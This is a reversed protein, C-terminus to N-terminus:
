KFHLSLFIRFDRGASPLRAYYCQYKTNLINNITFNLTPKTPITKFDLGFTSNLLWYSPTTYAREAVRNQKAYYTTRLAIKYRVVKDAPSHYNINSKINVPPVFDLPTGLTFYSEDIREGNLYALGTNIAMSSGTKPLNRFTYSGTIEGGWMRTKPINIYGYNKGPQGFIEEKSIMDQMLWIFPSFEFRFLRPTCSLTLDLSNCYEPELNPNCIAMGNPTYSDTYLETIEPMRFAHALNVKIITKAKIKQHLSLNGSVAHRRTDRGTLQEYSYASGEFVSTYDFRLGATLRTAPTLYHISEAYIGSVYSRADQSVRNEFDIGEIYDVADVPTSIHFSYLAAGTVLQQKQNIQITTKINGGYYYDSFRTTEMYSLQYGAVTYFAKIFERAEESYFINAEVSKITGGSYYLYRANLNKSNERETKVHMYDSSNFGVPKGWPGGNHIDASLILQQNKNIRYGASIFFDNDNYYSNEAIEGNPFKFNDANRYRFSTKVALKGNSWGGCALLNKENNIKGYGSTLKANFGEQKFPSKDILNIIGGMAGSGYVVSAAGKEVEIRELDYVNITHSMFGSPYSSFRQMGNRLVLLHKGSLGRLVIPAQYDSRNTFGTKTQLVDTINLPNLGEIEKKKTVLTAVSSRNEIKQYQVIIVENLDINDPQLQMTITNTNNSIFLTDTIYGLAQVIIKKTHSCFEFSGSSDCITGQNSTNTITAFPIPRGKSDNVIGVACNQAYSLFHTICFLIVSLHRIM